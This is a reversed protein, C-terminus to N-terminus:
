YDQRCLRGKEERIVDLMTTDQESSSINSSSRNMTSKAFREQLLSSRRSNRTKAVLKLENTSAIMVPLESDVTDTTDFSAGLDADSNSGNTNNKRSIHPPSDVAAKFANNVRVPPGLGVGGGGGGTNTNRTTSSKTSSAYSPNTTAVGITKPIGVPGRQNSINTRPIQRGTPHQNYYTPSKANIRMGTVSSGGGGGGATARFGGRSAVSGGGVRSSAVSIDDGVTEGAIIRQLVKKIRIDRTLDTDQLLRDFVDVMQQHVVELAKKANQRVAPSSDRLAKVLATAVQNWIELSLYGEQQQLNNQNDSWSHLAVGL